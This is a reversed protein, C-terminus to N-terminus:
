TPIVALAEDISRISSAYNQQVKLRENRLADALFDIVAKADAYNCYYGDADRELEQWAEGCRTVGVMEYRQIV